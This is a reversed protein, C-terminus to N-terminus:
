NGASPVIGFRFSSIWYSWEEWVWTCLSVINNWQSYWIGDQESFHSNCTHKKKEKWKQNTHTLYFDLGTDLLNDHSSLALWHADKQTIYQESVTLSAGYNLWSLLHIAHVKCCSWCPLWLSYNNCTLGRHVLVLVNDIEARVLLLSKVATRLSYYLDRWTVLVPPM